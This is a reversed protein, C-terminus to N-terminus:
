FPIRTMDYNQQISRRKFDRKAKNLKKKIERMIDNWWPPHSRDNYKFIRKPVAADRCEDFVEKFSSYM